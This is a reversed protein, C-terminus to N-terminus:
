KPSKRLWSGCSNVESVGPMCWVAATDQRGRELADAANEDAGAGGVALAILVIALARTEAQITADKTGPVCVAVM